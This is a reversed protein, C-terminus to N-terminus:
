AGDAPPIGFFEDLRTLRFVNAVSERLSVIVLEGDKRSIEKKLYVLMGLGSSDLYSVATMDLTYAWGTDDELEELFRSRLEKAQHVDLEGELLFTKRKKGPDARCDIKLTNEM